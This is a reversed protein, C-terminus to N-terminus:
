AFSAAGALLLAPSIKRGPVPLEDSHIFAQFPKVPSNSLVLPPDPEEGPFRMLDDSPVLKLFDFTQELCGLSELAM